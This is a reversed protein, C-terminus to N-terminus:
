PAQAATFKLTESLLGTNGFQFGAKYAINDVKWGAPTNVLLVADTWSVPQKGPEQHTLAVSCQGKQADGGCAGLKFSGAGEFLSSFLDGEILPPANRNARTFRTEAAAADAILKALRPSLLPALRMRATADPIGGTHPLNLYAAYFAGAASAMDDARAPAAGCLLLLALALQKV